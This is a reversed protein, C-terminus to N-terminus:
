SSNDRGNHWILTTKMPLVRGAWGRHRLPSPSPLGRVKARPGHLDASRPRIPSSEM